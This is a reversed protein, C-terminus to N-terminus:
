PATGSVNRIRINQTLSHCRSLPQYVHVSSGYYALVAGRHEGADADGQPEHGQKQQRGGRLVRLFEVAPQRPDQQDVDRAHQSQERQEDALEQTERTFVAPM